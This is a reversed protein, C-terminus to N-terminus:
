IDWIEDCYELITRDSSFKGSNALNILCIQAWKRRDKYTDNIKRQANVYSEFDKLVYYMDGRSDYGGVLERYIDIFMYTGNDEVKSEDILYDVAEKLDQNNYYYHKPNYSYAIEMLDEVKAGFLFNNEVGAEKFIM